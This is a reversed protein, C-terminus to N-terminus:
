QLETQQIYAVLSATIAASCRPSTSAAIKKMSRRAKPLPNSSYTSRARAAPTRNTREMTLRTMSSGTVCSRTSRCTVSDPSACDSVNSRTTSETPMRIGSSTRAIASRSPTPRSSKPKARDEDRAGSVVFTGPIKTAPAKAPGFSMGSVTASADAAAAQALPSSPAARPVITADRWSTGSIGTSPCAGRIPTKTQWQPTLMPATTSTGATASYAQVSGPTMWTSSPRYVHEWSM